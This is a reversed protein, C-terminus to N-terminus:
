LMTFLASLSLLLFHDFFKSSLPPIAPASKERRAYNLTVGALRSGVEAQRRM